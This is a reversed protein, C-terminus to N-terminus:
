QPACGRVIASNSEEVTPISLTFRQEDGDAPDVGVEAVGVEAYQINMAHVYCTVPADTYLYVEFTVETETPSIVAFGVDQWRAPQSAIDLAFWATIATLIALGIAVLAWKGRTLQPRAGSGEDARDHPEATPTSM